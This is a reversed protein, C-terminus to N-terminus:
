SAPKPLGHYSFVIHDFTTLDYKKAQAVFADIFKPHNYFQEVKFLIAQIGQKKIENEAAVLALKPPQCRM